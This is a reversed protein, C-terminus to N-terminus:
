TMPWRVTLRGDWQSASASASARKVDSEQFEVDYTFMVERREEVEQPGASGTVVQKAHPNCTTLNTKEGWSGEYEHRVSFPKVEFGVIRAAKTEEDLHYKVTFSLHNYIFHRKENSGAYHGTIGVPFGRLYTTFNEQETRELPVVLPLDDLMMNVRYGDDIKRKFNKAGKADLTIRCLIKCGECSRMRIKYPSNESRDGRLFQGLNEAGGVIHLPRCYHLSYYPYPLLTKTSTLTNVKVTLAEGAHFHRPAVDSLSFSRAHVLLLVCASIWLHQRLAAKGM